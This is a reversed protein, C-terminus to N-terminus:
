LFLPASPLPFINQRQRTTLLNPSHNRLMDAEISQSTELGVESPVEPAAFGEQSEDEDDDELPVNVLLTGFPSFIDISPDKALEKLIPVLFPREEEVM